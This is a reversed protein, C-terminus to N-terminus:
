SCRTSALSPSQGSAGTKGFRRRGNNLQPAAHRQARRHGHAAPVRVIPNELENSVRPGLCRHGFVAVVNRLKEATELTVARLRKQGLKGPMPVSQPPHDLEAEVGPQSAPDRRRVDQLFRVDVGQLSQGMKLGIRVHREEDPEARHRDLPEISTCRWCRPAWARSAALSLRPEAEAARDLGARLLHGLDDAVERRRALRAWRASVM